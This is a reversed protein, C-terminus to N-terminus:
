DATSLHSLYRKYDLVHIKGSLGFLDSYHKVSRIIQYAKDKGVGFLEMIDECNLIQGEELLQKKSIIAIPEESVLLLNKM